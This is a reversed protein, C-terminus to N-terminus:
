TAPNGSTTNLTTMVTDRQPLWWSACLIAISRNAFRTWAVIRASPLWATTIKSASLFLLNRLDDSTEVHEISDRTGIPRPRVPRRVPIDDDISEDVIRKKLVRPTRIKELGSIEDRIRQQFALDCRSAKNRIKVIVFHERNDIRHAETARTLTIRSSNHSVSVCVGERTALASRQTRGAGPWQLGSWDCTSLVAVM